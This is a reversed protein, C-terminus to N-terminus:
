ELADRVAQELRRGIRPGMRPAGETVDDEWQQERRDDRPRDEGEGEAETVGDAHLDHAAGGLERRVDDVVVDCGSAIERDSCRCREEGHDDHEAVQGRYTTGARQVVDSGAMTRDVNARRMSRRPM